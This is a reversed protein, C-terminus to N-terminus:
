SEEDELEVVGILEAVGVVEVVATSTGVVDVVATGTGVVEDVTATAGVVEEVAVGVDGAGVVGVDPSM